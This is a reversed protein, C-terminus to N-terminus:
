GLPAAQEPFTVEITGCAKAAAQPTGKVFVMVDEHIRGLARTARFQRGASTAMSWAPTVHVAGSCYGLGAAQMARVTSGRLDRLLRTKRSRSDGTVIVAFRNPHLAAAARALIRAYVEDFGEPTMGSLDREHGTYVETDYYPPCTFLLDASDPEVSWEASDGATWVASGPASAAPLLETAQEINALVQREALDNGRYYRGLVAAVIGRVSGGAFPDVVQGSPPSFWRYILECLVPDFISVASPPSDAVIEENSLKRGIIREQLERTGHTQANSRRWGTESAFAARGTESRGEADFRGEESRLGLALWQRRRDQWWGQRGDLVTFPAVLFQDSLHASAVPKTLKTALRVLEAESIATGALGRPSQSMDQLLAVLAAENWVAMRGTANDGIMIRKAADEDCDVLLAPLEALGDMRAAQWRHAGAIIDRTEERVLVAGYFGNEEISSTIAEVDGINPNAPHPQISDVRVMAFRQAVVSAM